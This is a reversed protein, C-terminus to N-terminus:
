VLKSFGCLESSRYEGLGVVSSMNIIAGQRAKSMGTKLSSLSDYYLCRDLKLLGTLDEETMEVDVDNQSALTSLFM